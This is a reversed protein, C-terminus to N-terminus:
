LVPCITAVRFPVLHLCSFELKIQCDSIIFNVQENEVDNLKKHTQIFESFEINMRQILRLFLNISIYSEDREFKSLAQPSVINESVDSLTLGKSKRLHRFTSGYKESNM